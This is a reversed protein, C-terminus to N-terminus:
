GNYIQLSAFLLSFVMSVERSSPRCKLLCLCRVRKVLFAPQPVSPALFSALATRLSSQIVQTATAVNGKKGACSGHRVFPLLLVDLLFYPTKHGHDVGPISWLTTILVTVRSHVLSNLVECGALNVPHLFLASLFLLLSPSRVVFPLLLQLGEPFFDHTVPGFGHSTLDAVIALAGNLRVLDEERSGVPRSDRGHNM